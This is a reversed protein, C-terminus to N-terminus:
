VSIALAEERLKSFKQELLRIQNELVQKRIAFTTEQQAIEQSLNNLVEKSANKQKVTEANLTNLITEKEVIADKHKSIIASHETQLETKKTSFELELSKTKTTLNTIESELLPIHKECEQIKQQAGQLAQALALGKELVRRENVLRQLLNVVETTSVDEM